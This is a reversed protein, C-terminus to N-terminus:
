KWCNRISNPWNWDWLLWLLGSNHRYDHERTQKLYGYSDMGLPSWYPDSLHVCTSYHCNRVIESYNRTLNPWKWGFCGSLHRGDHEWTQRLNRHRNMSLSRQYPHYSTGSFPCKCHKLTVNRTFKDSSSGLKPWFIAWSCRFDYLIRLSPRIFYTGVYSHM